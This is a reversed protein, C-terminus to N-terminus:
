NDISIEDGKEQGFIGKLKSIEKWNRDKDEIDNYINYMDASKWKMVAVIFDSSCGKRTLDSVIFHRFCHAYLDMDLIKEWQRIWSNVTSVKVPEGNSKIFMSNHDKNKEKMIRVREPLWLKFLPLFVDKIIYRSMMTGKKGHGKTKIDDTTELFLDGFATHSEDILDVGIIISESIRAGSAALLMLYTAQQLKNQELLADRLEYVKEPLLVTKKRVPTKPVKPVAKKTLNKFEPYDEDLYDEIFDSFSSMLSRMRSYRNGSWKLDLLGYDFFEALEIKKTDIFFKNDNYLYNYCFYINLDSQYNVITVDSCQANKKRLFQNILKKNKSNIKEIIEPSTIIKRFTKRAM